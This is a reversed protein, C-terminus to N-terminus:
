ESTHWNVVQWGLSDRLAVFTVVGSATWEEGGTRQAKTEFEGTLVGIHPTLTQVTRTGWRPDFSLQRSLMSQFAARLADRSGLRRTNILYAFDSRDSFFSAFRDADRARAAAFISDALALIATEVAAGADPATHAASAPPPAPSCGALALVVLAASPRM